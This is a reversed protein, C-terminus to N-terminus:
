HEPATQASSWVPAPPSLVAQVLALSPRRKFTLVARDVRELCALLDGTNRAQHTLLWRVVDEPLELGRAQAARRILAAREADDLPKLGVPQFQSLRTQLDPLACALRASPERAALLTVRQAARRADLLRLLPLAWASQASVSHLDDLCLLPQQELGELLGPGDGLCSALPLYAGGHARNAALLLHSKGSGPAGFLYMSAPESALALAEANPGPHFSALSATERLHVALPLQAGQM